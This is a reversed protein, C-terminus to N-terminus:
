AQAAPSDALNAAGVLLASGAVAYMLPAVSRPLDHRGFHTALLDAADCAIGALVWPRLPRGSRIADLTGAGLAADRAGFSRALVGVAPRRGDRGLWKGTVLDPRALLGAGIAIRGANIQTLLDRATV